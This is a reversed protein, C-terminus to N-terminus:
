HLPAASDHDSAESDGEDTPIRLEVLTGGDPHAEVRLRGGCMAARERMSSLGTTPGRPARLGCGDDRVRLRIEEDDVELELELRSADAHKLANTLAEQAIRYLCLARDPDLEVRPPWRGVVERRSRERVKKVLAM